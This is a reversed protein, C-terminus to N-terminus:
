CIKIYINKCDMIWVYRFGSCWPLQLPSSILSKYQTRLFTAVRAILAGGMDAAGRMSAVRLSSIYHHPAAYKPEVTTNGSGGPQPTSATLPIPAESGPSWVEPKSSISLRNPTTQGNPVVTLSPNPSELSSSHVPVEGTDKQGKDKTSPSESIETTVEPPEESPLQDPIRTDQEPRADSEAACTTCSLVSSSTATFCSSSTSSRDECTDCVPLSPPLSPPPKKDEDDNETQDEDLNDSSKISSKSTRHSGPSSQQWSWRGSGARSKEQSDGGSSGVDSRSQVDSHVDSQSGDHADISIYGCSLNALDDHLGNISFERSAADDLLRNLSATDTDEGEGMMSSACSSGSDDIFPIACSEDGTVGGVASVASM